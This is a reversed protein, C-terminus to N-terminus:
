LLRRWEEVNIPQVRAFWNERHRECAEILRFVAEIDPTVILREERLTRLRETLVRFSQENEAPRIPHFNYLGGGDENLPSPEISPDTGLHKVKKIKPGVKWMEAVVRFNLMVLKALGLYAYALHPHILWTSPLRYEWHVYVADPRAFPATSVGLRIVDPSMPGGYHHNRNERQVWPMVWFEFPELLWNMIQAWTYPTLLRGDNIAHVIERQMSESATSPSPVLGSDARITWGYKAIQVWTPDALFGSVHIHGGLTENHLHPIALLEHGMHKQAVYQQATHLAYALDYMHRKLNRSPTPRIEAIVPRNDCGIFSAATKAKDKGLISCAPTITYDFDAPKVFLFEPDSGMRYLHFKPVVLDTKAV